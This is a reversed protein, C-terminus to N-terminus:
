GLHGNLSFRYAPTILIYGLGGNLSIDLGVKISSDLGVMYQISGLGGLISIDSGLM